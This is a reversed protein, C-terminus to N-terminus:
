PTVGGAKNKELEHQYLQYRWRLGTDVMPFINEVMYDVGVTNPHMGDALTLSPNDAIGVMADPYLPVSQATAIDVFNQTIAARYIGMLKLRWPPRLYMM